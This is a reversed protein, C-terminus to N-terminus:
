ERCILFGPNINVKKAAGQFCVSNDMSLDRFLPHKRCWHWEHTWSFSAKWSEHSMIRSKGGSRLPFLYQTRQTSLLLQVQGTGHVAAWDCLAGLQRDFPHDGWCPWDAEVTVVDITVTASLSKGWIWRCPPPRGRFDLRVFFIRFFEAVWIRVGCAGARRSSTSTSLSSLSSSSSSLGPSASAMPSTSAAIPAGHVRRFSILKSSNVNMYTTTKM